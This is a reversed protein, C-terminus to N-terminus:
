INIILDKHIPHDKKHKFIYDYAKILDSETQQVSKINIAPHLKRRPTVNHKHKNMLDTLEIPDYVTLVHAHLVFNKHKEFCAFYQVHNLKSVIRNLAARQEDINYNKCISPDFTLTILHYQKKFDLEDRYRDRLEEVILDPEWYKMNHHTGGPLFYKSNWKNYIDLQCVIQKRQSDLKELISTLNEISFEAM